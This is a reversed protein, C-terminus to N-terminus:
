LTRWGLFDRRPEFPSATLAKVYEPSLVEQIITGIRLWAEYNLFATAGAEIAEPCSERGSVMIIPAHPAVARLERVLTLGDVDHARHAVIATPVEAKVTALATASDDCETILSGPFKRLLTKALLFRNEDVDDVILFKAPASPISSV